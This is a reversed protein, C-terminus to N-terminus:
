LCADPKIAVIEVGRLYRQGEALWSDADRLAFGPKGFIAGLSSGLSTRPPQYRFRSLGCFEVPLDVIEKRAEVVIESRPPCQGTPITSPDEAPQKKGRLIVAEGKEGLGQCPDTLSAENDIEVDIARRLGFQIDSLPRFSAM